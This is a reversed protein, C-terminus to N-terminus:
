NVRAARLALVAEKYTAIQREAEHIEKLQDVVPRGECKAVIVDAIEKSLNGMEHDVSLRVLEFRQPKSGERMACIKQWHAEGMTPDIEDMASQMLLLQFAPSKREDDPNLYGYIVAEYIGTLRAIDRRRGHPIADSLEREVESQTFNIPM